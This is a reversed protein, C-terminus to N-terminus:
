GNKIRSGAVDIFKFTMKILIVALVVIITSSIGYVDIFQMLLEGIQSFDM